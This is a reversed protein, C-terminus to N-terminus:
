ADSAAKWAEIVLGRHFAVLVGVALILAAEDIPIIPIPLLGFAFLWRLWRPVRRDTALIRGARLVRKARRM